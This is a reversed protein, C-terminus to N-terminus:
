LSHRAVVWTRALRDFIGVHARRYRELGLDFLECPPATMMAALIDDHDQLRQHESRLVSCGVAARLLHPVAPPGGEIMRNVLLKRPVVHEHEVRDEPTARAEWIGVSVLKTAFKSPGEAESAKWCTLSLCERLHSPHLDDRIRLLAQAIRIASEQRREADARQVWPKQMADATRGCPAISAIASGGLADADCEFREPDVVVPTERPRRRPACRWTVPRHQALQWGRAARLM